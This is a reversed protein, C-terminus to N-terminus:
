TQAALSTTNPAPMSCRTRERKAVEASLEEVSVSPLPDDTKNGRSTSGNGSAQMLRDGVKTWDINRM